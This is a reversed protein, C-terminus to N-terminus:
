VVYLRYSRGDPERRVMRAWDMVWLIEQVLKKDVDFVEAFESQKIGPSTRIARDLMAVAETQDRVTACADAWPRLEAVRNVAEEVEAILDLDRTAAGWNLLVVIPLLLFRGGRGGRYIIGGSTQPALSVNQGVAVAPIERLHPLAARAITVMEAPDAMDPYVAELQALLEDYRDLRPRDCHAVWGRATRDLRPALLLRQPPDEYADVCGVSPLETRETLQVDAEDSQEAASSPLIMGLSEADVVDIIDGVAVDSPPAALRIV